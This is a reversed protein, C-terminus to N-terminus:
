RQGGAKDLIQQGKRAKEIMNYLKGNIYNLFVNYSIGKLKGMREWLSLISAKPNEWYAAMIEEGFAEDIKKSMM